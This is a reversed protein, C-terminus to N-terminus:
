MVAGVFIVAWAAIVIIQVGALWDDSQERNMRPTPDIRNMHRDKRASHAVAAARRQVAVRVAPRIALIRRGVRRGERHGERRGERHGERHGESGVRHGERRGVRGM